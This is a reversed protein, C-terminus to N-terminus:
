RQRAQNVCLLSYSYVRLILKSDAVVATNSPGEDEVEIRGTCLVRRNLKFLREEGPQPQLIECLAVFRLRSLSHM